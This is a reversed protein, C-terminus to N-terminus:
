RTWNRGRACLCKWLDGGGRSRERLDGRARELRKANQPQTFSSIPRDVFVLSTKRSTAAQQLLHQQISARDRGAPGSLRGKRRAASQSGELWPAGEEDDTPPLRRTTGGLCCTTRWSGRGKTVPHGRSRSPPEACHIREHTWLRRRCFFTGTERWTSRPRRRTM